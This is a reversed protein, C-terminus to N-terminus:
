ETPRDPDEAQAHGTPWQAKRRVSELYRRLEAREVCWVDREPWWVSRLRGSRIARQLTLRDLGAEAAADDLTLFEGPDSEEETTVRLM